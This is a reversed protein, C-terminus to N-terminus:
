YREKFIKRLGEIAYKSIIMNSNTSFPITMLIGNRYQPKNKQFKNSRIFVYISNCNSNQSRLKEACCIAFTSIREKIKEYDTITGRLVEQQQLQKKPSRVEELDLVSKGELEKKLRLGVVSMNKRVWNDELNTFDYATNIKINRLRKSHKFGIGWVDEIKLWKLANEKKNSSDILYVGNTREPFKKAIRNAVKALAKTPAFRYKNTNWDM